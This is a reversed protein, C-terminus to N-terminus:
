KQTVCFCKLFRKLEQRYNSSLIVCICPNIVCNADAMFLTIDWFLIAGCPLGGDWALFKLLIMISTPVWCITFGLVIAIALKLVKKDRKTRKEVAMASREGPFIQTKLKFVIVAYLTTMLLLPIYLLIVYRGLFYGAESSSEGFADTWRRKCALIGPYEVLKFAFLYPSNITMAVIWTGLICFFCLKSSILPARLPYVVAGYRDVTILILSQVSVFTSITPLFYSLKCLAQGLAGNILWSDVFLKTLLPPFLTVSFLLDSVAMNVIFYNIAKRMTQTKYVMVAIISNGVLSVVLFLCFTVTKGIKEVTSDVPSSCTSGNVTTNM